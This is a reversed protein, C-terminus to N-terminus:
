EEVVEITMSGSYKGNSVTLEHTGVGDFNLTVFEGDREPTIANGDLTWTYTEKITFGDVYYSEDEDMIIESPGVIHLNSGAKWSMTEEGDTDCSVLCVSVGCLLLCVLFNIRIKKM